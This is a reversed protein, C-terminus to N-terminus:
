WGGQTCKVQHIFHYRIDIHKICAHYKDNTALKLTAQNNCYLATISLLTPFLEGILWCLWICEKAAHTAAVYEAEATSLTILEQKWSSWSIAGSDILFVYGSITQHHNQSAGDANMYGVLDHKEGGYTLAYDWTRSLYQFIHKMAEWHAEGLNDLFQSLTVVAFTIDPHTAVSAYMLSGIAKCYPVKCM